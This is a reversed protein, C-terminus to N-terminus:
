GLSCVLANLTRTHASSRAGNCHLPSPLWSAAHSAPSPMSVLDDQLAGAKHEAETHPLCLYFPSRHSPATSAKRSPRTACSKCAHLVEFWWWRRTGVHATAHTSAHMCLDAHSSMVSQASGLWAHWPEALARIPHKGMCRKVRPVYGSTLRTGIHSGLTCPDQWQRSQMAGCQM